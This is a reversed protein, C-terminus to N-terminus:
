QRLLDTSLAELRPKLLLYNSLLFIDVEPIISTKFGVPIISTKFRDLMLFTRSYKYKRTVDVRIYITASNNQHYCRKSPALLDIEM